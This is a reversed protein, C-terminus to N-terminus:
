QGEEQAAFDAQDRRVRGVPRAADHYFLVDWGRDAALRLLRRKAELTGLPFLDLGALWALRVHARTPVIDGPLLLTHGDAEVQVVQHYGTHGGVPMVRVGPAVEKEGQVTELQRASALPVFDDERYCARSRENPHTAEEWEGMQVIYRARPFAPVLRGDVLRTNGGAHDLHLHTNVVLDVDEPRFGAAGLAGELSAAPDIGFRERDRESWRDGAGTDVLVRQGQTEVLAVNLGLTVRNRDDPPLAKEWLPRPVIGYVAGADVSIRGASLVHVTVPGLTLSM